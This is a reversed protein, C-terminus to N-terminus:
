HDMFEEFENREMLTADGTRPRADSSRSPKFGKDMAKVIAEKQTDARVYTFNERDHDYVTWECSPGLTM